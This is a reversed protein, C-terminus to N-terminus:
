LVLSMAPAALMVTLGSAFKVSAGQFSLPAGDTGTSGGNSSDGNSGSGGNGYGTALPIGGSVTGSASPSATSNLSVFQGGAVAPAATSNETM